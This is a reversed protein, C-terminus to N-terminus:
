RGGEAGAADMARRMASMLEGLAPPIEDPRDALAEVRSVVASGVIVADAFRAVAAATEADKIGFGVGVPLATAGRIQAVKEAVPGLDLNAAGTVGKLSVYYVFGSAAACIRAIREPGSTPAVLYITDVGAGRLTQLLEHGEDPPLDVTLVGDVGAAAAAEAFPGYGAVEIPNLYGMLVVPTQGDTRRFDRVMDLVDRLSTHHLLARESARQIVPGDAMPDSFPVGLEIVDAGGAVLAHMMPVTAGRHPDGATIFPVLATRGAGRLAAFRGALRSM